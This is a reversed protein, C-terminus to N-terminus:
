QGCGAKATSLEPVDVEENDSNNEHKRKKSRVLSDIVSSAPSTSATQAFSTLTSSAIPPARLISSNMPSPAEIEVFHLNVPENQSVEEMEMNDEAPIQENKVM